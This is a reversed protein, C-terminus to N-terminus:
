KISYKAHDNKFNDKREWKFIDMREDETGCDKTYRSNMRDQVEFTGLGEIEVKTGFPHCNSAVAGEYVRKGSAMTFPDSDTQGEEANYTTLKVSMKPKEPTKIEKEITSAEAVQIIRTSEFVLQKQPIEIQQLQGILMNLLIICLIVDKTENWAQRAKQKLVAKRRNKGIKSAQM